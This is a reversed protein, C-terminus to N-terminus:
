QSLSDLAQRAAAYNPNYGLARRYAAAAQQNQGQAAYVRGRWFYTEELEPATNENHASLTLVDQYRGVAFYAAFAGHQYWMMRWPLRGTSTAQDFAAAAEQHRGLAVLSSGMNFWAFADQPNSRAESRATEFAIQAADAEDWHTGLLSRLLAEREPHYVVIFTRNFARWDNDVRAYGETVGNADAGVGLFSDYFYFQQYADDYGVVVRYHGIWDYGEFMAATEIVTPFGNAVLRKLLELSGGVRAIAEVFSEARVFDVLESPSVNKDERNPKLIGGAYAQSERWGHFSLAMTITAPGCNNWTQQQHLIGDIRASSPLFDVPPAPSPPLATATPPSIVPPTNTATAPLPSPPATEAIRIPASTMTPPPSDLPLDLLSLAAGEDIPAAITPFVGGAPTPKRLVRMFPLQDIIRQQQAPQLIERFGIVAFAVGLAFALFALVIGWFLWRPPARLGDDRRRLSARPSPQTDHLSRM